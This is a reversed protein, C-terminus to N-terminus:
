TSKILCSALYERCEREFEEDSKPAPTEYKGKLLEVVIFHLDDFSGVLRLQEGTRINLLRAERPSDPHIMQWLWAYVV